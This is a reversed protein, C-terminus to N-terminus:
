VVVATPDNALGFRELLLLALLALDLGELVERTGHYLLIATDDELAAL